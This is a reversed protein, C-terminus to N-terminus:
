SSSKTSNNKDSYKKFKNYEKERIPVFEEPLEGESTLFDLPFAYCIIKGNSCLRGKSKVEDGDFSYLDTHNRDCCFFLYNKGPKVELKSVLVEKTSFKPQWIATAKM